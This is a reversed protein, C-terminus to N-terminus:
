LLPPSNLHFFRKRHNLDPHYRRRSFRSRSGELFSNIFVAAIFVVMNIILVSYNRFGAISQLVIELLVPYSGLDLIRNGQM